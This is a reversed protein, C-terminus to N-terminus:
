GLKQVAEVFREVEPTMSELVAELDTIKAKHHAIRDQLTQRFTRQRILGGDILDQASPGEYAMKEQGRNLARVLPNSM